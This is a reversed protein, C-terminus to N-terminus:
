RFHAASVAAIDTMAGGPDAFPMPRIRSGSGASTSWPRMCYRDGCETRHDLRSTTTEEGAVERKELRHRRAPAPNAVRASSPGRDAVHAGDTDPVRRASRAGPAGLDRAGATSTGRTPRRRRPVPLHRSQFVVPQQRVTPLRHTVPLVIPLPRAAPAVFPRALPYPWIPFAHSVAHSVTIHCPLRRSPAANQRHASSPRPQRARLGTGLDPKTATALHRARNGTLRPAKM